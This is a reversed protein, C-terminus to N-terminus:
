HRRDRFRGARNLSSGGGRHLLLAGACGTGLACVTTALSAGQWGALSGLLPMAVVLPATQVLVLLSQVRALHTRPTKSLFLSGFRTTFLSTGVGQVLAAALAITLVKSWAVLVTGCGAVFLGTGGVLTPTGRTGRVAVLVTVALAGAVEAGVVLGSSAASWDRTRALLPVCLTPVPLLFTAVLGVVLLARRLEPSDTTDRLGNVAQRFVAPSGPAPTLEHRPRAALLVGLVLAFSAADLLAAGTLGVFTVLAGGTPGAGLRVLQSASEKLALARPIEVDDVFLRPFTGTAPLYFADIVGITLGTAVLVWWHVGEVRTVGALMMTALCMVADGVIMVQRAGWRDSVAGGTLLLLTRPVIITTLVLGGWEAGIGTAAWGLAFGLASDGWTSLTAAALWLLYSRPLGTSPQERTTPTTM